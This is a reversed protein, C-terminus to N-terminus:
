DVRGTRGFRGLRQAKWIQPCTQMPHKGRKLAKKSKVFRHMSLRIEMNKDKTNVLEHSKFTVKLRKKAPAAGDGDM